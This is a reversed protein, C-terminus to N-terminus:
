RADQENTPRGQAQAEASSPPQYRRQRLRGRKALRPQWTELMTQQESDADQEDMESCSANDKMGSASSLQRMSGYSNRSCRKPLRSGRMRHVTKGGWLACGRRRWADWGELVQGRARGRRSQPVGREKYGKNLSRMRGVARRESAIALARACLRRVPAADAACRQVLEVRWLDRACEALCETSKSLRSQAVDRMVVRM